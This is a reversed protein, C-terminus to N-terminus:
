DEEQALQSREDLHGGVERLIQDGIRLPGMLNPSRL